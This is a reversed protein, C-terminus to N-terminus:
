TEEVQFSIVSWEFDVTDASRVTGGIPPALVVAQGSIHALSGTYPTYAFAVTDGDHALMWEQVSVGGAVTGFDQILTGGITSKRTVAGAVYSGDLVPQADGVSSGPTFTIATAQMSISSYKPTPTTVDFSGPGLPMINTM